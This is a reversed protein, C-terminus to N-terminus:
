IFTFINLFILLISKTILYKRRFALAPALEAGPAGGRALELASFSKAQKATIL